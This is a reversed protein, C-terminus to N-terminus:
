QAPQTLFQSQAKSIRLRASGNCADDQTGQGALPILLSLSLPLSLFGSGCWQKRSSVAGEICASQWTRIGKMGM